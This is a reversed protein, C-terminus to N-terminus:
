ESAQPPLAFAVVTVGPWGGPAYVVGGAVSPPGGESSRDSSVASSFTAGFRPWAVAALPRQCTFTCGVTRYAYLHPGFRADVPAFVVGNAITPGSTFVTTTEDSPGPQATWLPPWLVPASPVFSSACTATLYGYLFRNFAAVPTNIGVTETKWPYAWLPQCMAGGVGCGVPFAWVLDAVEYVMGDAVTPSSAVEPGLLPIDAQWLPRCVKACDAPFASLWVQDGDTAEASSGVYIVGDEITPSSDIGGDTRATWLPTCEADNTGCTASFTYLIQAAFSVV